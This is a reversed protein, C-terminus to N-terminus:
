HLFSTVGNSICHLYTKRASVWQYATSYRSISLCLRTSLCWCGLCAIILEPYWILPKTCSLLLEMALASSNSCDQVLGDIHVHSQCQTLVNLTFCFPRWKASLMNWHMKNYSFANIESFNTEWTRILLKGANIWIIAQCQGPLLGNDSSVNTLKSICIHM